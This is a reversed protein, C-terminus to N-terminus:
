WASTENGGGCEARRHRMLNLPQPCKAVPNKQGAPRASSQLRTNRTTAAPRRRAGRAHWQAYASLPPEKSVQRKAHSLTRVSTPRARNPNRTSRKGNPQLRRRPGVHHLTSQKSVRTM